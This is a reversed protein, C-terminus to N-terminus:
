GGASTAPKRNFEELKNFTIMSQIEEVYEEGRESYKELGVALEHGLLAEDDRRQKARVDRLKAYAPHSNLTLVYKNVSAQTSEFKQVEHVAGDNRDKPTMGCGKSFCWIGFFNYGTRAFRSTGWGSENAGQALILAAPVADVKILLADILEAYNMETTVRYRKALNTLQEKDRKSLEEPDLTLLFDRRELEVDNAKRIRPLLYNFFDRKKAKVDKYDAFNPLAAPTSVAVKESGATNDSTQPKTAHQETAQDENSCATILLIAILTIGAIPNLKLM